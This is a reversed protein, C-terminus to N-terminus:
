HSDYTTGFANLVPRVKTMEMLQLLTFVHCWQQMTHHVVVDQVRDVGDGVVVKGQM